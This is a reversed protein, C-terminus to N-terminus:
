FLPYDGLDPKFHVLYILFIFVKWIWVSFNPSTQSLKVNNQGHDFNSKFIKCDCSDYIMAFSMCYANSQSARLLRIISFKFYFISCLLAEFINWNDSIPKIWLKEFCLENTIVWFFFVNAVYAYYSLFVLRTM